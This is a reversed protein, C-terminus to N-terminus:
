IEFWDLGIRPIQNTSAMIGFRMNQPREKQCSHFHLWVHLLSNRHKESCLWKIHFINRRSSHTRMELDSLLPCRKVSFRTVPVYFLSRKIQSIESCLQPTQLLWWIIPNYVTHCVHPTCSITYSSRSINIFSHAIEKNSGVSSANHLLCMCIFNTM